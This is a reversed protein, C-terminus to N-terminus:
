GCFEFPGPGIGSRQLELFRAQAQEADAERARILGEITEYISPPPKWEPDVERVKRIAEQARAIYRSLPLAALPHTRAPLGRM